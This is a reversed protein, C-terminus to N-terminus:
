QKVGYTLAIATQGDSKAVTITDSQGGPAPMAWMSGDPQNSTMMPKVGTAAIKQEYFASVKALPDSTLFIVQKHHGVPMGEGGHSAIDTVQSVTAGPYVPAWVPLDGPAVAQGPGAVKAVMAPGNGSDGMTVTTGGDTNHAITTGNSGCASILACM